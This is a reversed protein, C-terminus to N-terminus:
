RHAAARRNNRRIRGIRRLTRTGFDEISEGIVLVTIGTPPDYAVPLTVGEALLDRHQLKVRQTTFADFSDRGSDAAPVVRLWLDFWHYEPEGEGSGWRGRYKLRTITGSGPRGEAFLRVFLRARVRGKALLCFVAVGLMGWFYQRPVYPLVVAVVGLRLVGWVVWTALLGWGAWSFVRYWWVFEM